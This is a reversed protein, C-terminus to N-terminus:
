NAFVSWTRSFHFLRGNPDAKQFKEEFETPFTILYVYKENRDFVKLFNNHYDTEIRRPRPAKMFFYLVKAFGFGGYAAVYVSRGSYRRGLYKALRLEEAPKDLWIAEVLRRENVCAFVLLLGGALAYRISVPLQRVSLLLSFPLTMLIVMFPFAISLRHYGPPPLVLVVFGFFTAAIVLFVFLLESRRFLLVLGALIGTLFLVLSFWGFFAQHGFDYGGGGGIGDQFFSKLSLILNDRVIPIPNTGAAIAERHPSWDGTLLGLQNTRAAVYNGYRLGFAMFPALVLLMGALAIAFNQLVAINRRRLLQVAFVVVFLPFALYSTYYTLYCLGCAMGALAAHFTEETRYERLAFYFFVTFIATSSIFMLGLTELYISAAFFSYLVVAVLAAKQDLIERVILFLMLSVIAVYIQVSLRVTLMSEGFLTFFVRQLFFFPTPFQGQWEWYEPISGFFSLHAFDHTASFYGTMFEDTHMRNSDFNVIRVLVPLAAAILLFAATSPRFTPRTERPRDRTALAFPFLSLLWPIALWPSNLGRFVLFAVVLSTALALGFAGARVAPKMRREERDIRSSAM